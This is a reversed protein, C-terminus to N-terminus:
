PASERPTRGAPWYILALLGLLPGSNPDTGTGTFIGGIGEALWLLVALAVAAVIAARIVPEPLYVSVAVAILLAALVISAALGHGAIANAAHSDAWALWAPQGQATTTLMSSMGHPARAAPLLTFAALSGWVALWAARAAHRGTARGAVFTTADRDAPWLLIALLAYLVVAGPAGTLPSANGTLIGGLGEGLWWVGCSWLVSAALAPKVTPRFAIALGLAVQITAFVGNSITLHHGIFTASWAIPAAVPKPNGKAAGTLMQPFARSFMSPQYQLLGDLLWLAGLTLQFKRRADLAAMREGAIAGPAAGAAASPAVGGVASESM